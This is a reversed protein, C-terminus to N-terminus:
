GTVISVKASTFNFSVSANSGFTVVAFLTDPDFRTVLSQAVTLSLNFDAKSTSNCSDLVFVIDYYPTYRKGRSDDPRDLFYKM